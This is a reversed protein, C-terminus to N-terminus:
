VRSEVVTLEYRRLVGLVAEWIKQGQECECCQELVLAVNGLRTVGSDKCQVCKTGTVNPAPGGDGGVGTRKAECGVTQMESM